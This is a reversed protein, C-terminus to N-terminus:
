GEKKESLHVHRAPLTSTNTEGAHGVAVGGEVEDVVGEGGEVGLYAGGERRGERGEQEM